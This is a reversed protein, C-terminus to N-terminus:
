RVAKYRKQNSNPVLSNHSNSRKRSPGFIPYPELDDDDDDYEEKHDNLTAISDIINDEEEQQQEQQQTTHLLLHKGVYNEARKWYSVGIENKL